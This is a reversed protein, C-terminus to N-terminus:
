GAAFHHRRAGRDASGAGERRACDDGAGRPKRSRPRTESAIRRAQSFDSFGPLSPTETAEYSLAHALLEDLADAAELGLRALIRERGRDRGLIRSLFDFPRLARAEVRWRALNAAADRFKATGEKAAELADALTGARGYAIQFLEEESFDFLPSKLACALALDDSPLLLADCLAAIDMVAIHEALKLRDAGAVPIGAQKLERLIAEFLPGRSRVLVIIDGAHPRRPKESEPDGILIDPKTLWANVAKAIRQALMSPAGSESVSDLPADWALEDEKGDPARVTDWIEVLAPADSRIASHITRTESAASSLGRFNEPLGFVEDVAEVIGAASRFSLDLRKPEFKRAAIEVRTQFSRRM